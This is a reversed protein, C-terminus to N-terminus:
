SRVEIGSVRLVRDRTIQTRVEDELDKLLADVTSYDSYSPLTWRGVQGPAAPSDSRVSFGVTGNERHLYGIGFFTGGEVSLEVWCENARLELWVGPADMDAVIAEAAEAVQRMQELVRYGTDYLNLVRLHREIDGTAGKALPALHERVKRAATRKRAKIQEANM